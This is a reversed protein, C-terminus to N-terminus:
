LMKGTTGTECDYGVFSNEDVASGASSAGPAVACIVRLSSRWPQLALSRGLGASVAVPAGGAHHRLGTGRGRRGCGYAQEPERQALGKARSRPATRGHGVGREGYGGIVM